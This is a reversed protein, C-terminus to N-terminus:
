ARSVKKLFASLRSAALIRRLSANRSGHVFAGFLVALFRRAVACRLRGRGSVARAQVLDADIDAGVVDALLGLGFFAVVGKGVRDRDAVFALHRCAQERAV